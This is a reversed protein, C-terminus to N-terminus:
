DPFEELEEELNWEDNQLSFVNSNPNDVGKMAFGSQRRGLLLSQPKSKVDLTVESDDTLTGMMASIHKRVGPHMLASHQQPSPQMALLCKLYPVVVTLLETSSLFSVPLCGGDDVVNDPLVRGADKLLPPRHNFGGSACASQKVVFDFSRSAKDPVFPPRSGECPTPASVHPVECAVLATRLDRTM